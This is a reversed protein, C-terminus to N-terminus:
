RTYLFSTPSIYFFLHGNPSIIIRGSWRGLFLFFCIAKREIGFFCMLFLNSFPARPSPIIMFISHPPPPPPTHQAILWKVGVHNKHNRGAM